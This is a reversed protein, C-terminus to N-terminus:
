DEEMVKDDGTAANINKAEQERRAVLSSFLGSGETNEQREKELMSELEVLDLDEKIIGRRQLEEIVLTRPIIGKAQADILIKAEVDAMFTRFEVNLTVKPLETDKPIGIYDATIRNAQNLADEWTLAWSKLASDNESKDIAKETATINGTRPMLYTLGYMSMQNELDLIDQRGAGIANGQHEVVELKADPEDTTVFKNPGFVIDDGIGAGFYVVLRAYHIINRQDSTSQWHAINLDALGELPPDVVMPKKREGLYSVVLPIYGLKNTGKKVMEWNGAETEEHIEWKNPEFVRIRKVDKQGYDGEPEQVQEFIRIQVLTEKGNIVETRWGIIQNADIRVWNPRLGKGKEQEKSWPKWQGDQDLFFTVEGEKKLTVQPYDVLIYGLGQHLAKKFGKLGFQTVDDGNNDVNDLISKLDDPMADPVVVPKSFVEGALKMITNKFYNVLYTRALRNNYDGSEEEKERPLYATKAARMSRTGGMLTDLPKLIEMFDAYDELPTDVTVPDKVQKETKAM